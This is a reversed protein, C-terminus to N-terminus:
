VASIFLLGILILAMIVATAAWSQVGRETEMNYQDSIQSRLSSTPQSSPAERKSLIEHVSVADGGSVGGNAAEREELSRYFAEAEENRLPQTWTEAKAEAPKKAEAQEITRQRERLIAEFPNAISDGRPAAHPKASLSETPVVTAFVNDPSEVARAMPVEPEAKSSPKLKSFELERVTDAEDEALRKATEPTDITVPAPDLLQEAAKAVTQMVEQASKQELAEEREEVEAEQRDLEAQKEKLKRVDEKTREQQQRLRSQATKFEETQKEARDEIKKEAKKQKRELERKTRRHEPRSVASGVAGAFLVDRLRPRYNINTTDGDHTIVPTYRDNASATPFDFDDIAGRDIEHFQETRPQEPWPPQVPRQRVEIEERGSVAFDFPPAEEVPEDEVPEADQYMSEVSHIEPGEIGSEAAETAFEPTAQEGRVFRMFREGADKFRQAVIMHFETREQESLESLKEADSLERADREDVIRDFFSGEPQEKTDDDKRFIDRIFQLASVNREAEGDQSELTKDRNVREWFRERWSRKDSKDHGEEGGAEAKREFREEM